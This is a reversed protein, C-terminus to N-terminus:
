MAQYPGVHGYKVWSKGNWWFMESYNANPTADFTDEWEYNADQETRKRIPETKVLKWIGRQFDYFWHRISWYWRM